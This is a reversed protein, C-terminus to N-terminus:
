NLDSTVLKTTTKQAILTREYNHRTIRRRKIFFTSLCPRSFFTNTKRIAASILTALHKAIYLDRLEPQCSVVTEDFYFTFM